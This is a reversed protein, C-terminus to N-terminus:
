NLTPPWCSMLRCVRSGPTPRRTPAARLVSESSAWVDAGDSTSVIKAVISEPAKIGLKIALNTPDAIMLTSASPKPLPAGSATNYAAYLTSGDPSFISGGYNATANFPTNQSYPANRYDMQGIVSLTAVDFMTFGAMFRSGDPSMSLATSQGVSARTRLVTGSAVEYVYVLTNTGGTNLNNVGVILRGDPTRLLKGRFTTTPRATTLAALVAPTTPTPPFSVSQVAGGQLPDYILLVNQPTATNTGTGQTSILVRGDIGVEVGEPKAPLTISNSVNGIGGRLDIVSLTSNTNNTVYLYSSDPSIAAAYPLTGVKISGIVQKQSYNYVDVKNAASNVLYLRGRSEDLVVDSPTYGLKIVDGFTAGTTQAQLVPNVCAAAVALASVFKLLRFLPM